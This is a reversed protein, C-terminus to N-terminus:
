LASPKAVTAIRRRGQQPPFMFPAVRQLLKGMLITICALLLATAVASVKTLYMGEPIVQSWWHDRIQPVFLYHFILVYLTSEGIWMMFSCKFRQTLLLSIGMILYIGAFAFIITPFYYPSVITHHFNNRVDLPVVLLLTLISVVLLLHSYWRGSLWYEKGYYGVLFFPLGLCANGFFGTNRWHMISCMYGIVALITYAMMRFSLRKFGNEVIYVITQMWFLAILFWLPVNGVLYFTLYKLHLGERFSVDQFHYFLVETALGALVGVACPLLLGRSERKIFAHISVFPKFFIGSLFFFVPMFFANAFVSNCKNLHYIVVIMITICKAVDVFKVRGNDTRTVDPCNSNLTNLKM